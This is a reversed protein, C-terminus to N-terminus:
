TFTFPHEVFSEPGGEAQKWRTETHLTNIISSDGLRLLYRM